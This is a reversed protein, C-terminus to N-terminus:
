KPKEDAHSEAEGPVGFAIPREKTPHEPVYKELEDKGTEHWWRLAQGMSVIGRRGPKIGSSHALAMLLPPYLGYEKLVRVLFPKGLAGMWGLSSVMTSYAMGDQESDLALYLTSAAAPSRSKRLAIAANLRVLPAEDTLKEILWLTEECTPTASSEVYQHTKMPPWDPSLVAERLDVTARQTEASCGSFTAALMALLLCAFGATRDHKM